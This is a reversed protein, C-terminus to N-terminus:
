GEKTRRGALCLAAVLKVDVNWKTAWCGGCHGICGHCERCLTILNTADLERGPAVHVPEIHHVELRKSVGCAACAPRVGLWEKRLKPWRKDRGTFLAYIAGFM